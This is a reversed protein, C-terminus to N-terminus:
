YYVPREGSVISLGRLAHASDGVVDLFFQESETKAIHLNKYVKLSRLLDVSTTVEKVLRQIDTADVNITTDAAAVRAITELTHGTLKLRQVALPIRYKPNAQFADDIQKLEIPFRYNLLELQDTVVSSQAVSHLGRLEAHIVGQILHAGGCTYKFIGQRQKKFATGRDRAQAIFDTSAVLGKAVLQAFASLSSETCAGSDRPTSKWTTEPASWSALAMLSWPTDNLSQFSTRGTTGNHWNSALTGRYLDAVTHSHEGVTVSRSPPVGADTLAKLILSPHPEVRTTGHSKPFVLATSEGPIEIRQAYTSFMWDIANSGNTLRLDAGMAVVAHGIAWPLDPQLAHTVLADRLTEVASITEAEFVIPADFRRATPIHSPSPISVCTEEQVAEPEPSGTCAFALLWFM